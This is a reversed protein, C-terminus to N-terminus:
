QKKAKLYDEENSLIVDNQNYDDDQTLERNAYLRALRRSSGGRRKMTECNSVKFRM